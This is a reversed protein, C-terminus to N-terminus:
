DRFKYRVKIVSYKLQKFYGMEMFKQAAFKNGLLLLGM